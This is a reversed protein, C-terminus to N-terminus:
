SHLFGLAGSSKGTANTWRGPELYREVCLAWLLTDLPLALTGGAWLFIQFADKFCLTGIILTVLSKQM